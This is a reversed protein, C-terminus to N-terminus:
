ELNSSDSQNEQMWEACENVKDAGIIQALWILIQPILFILIAAVIRKGFKKVANQIGDKDDIFVVKAFDFTTFAILLLPIAIRVITFVNNNLFKLFDSGFLTECTENPSSNDQSYNSFIKSQCIYNVKSLENKTKSFEYGVTEGNENEISNIWTPYDKINGSDFASKYSEIGNVTIEKTSSLFVNSSSNETYFKYGGNAKKVIIKPANSNNYALYYAFGGMQETANKISGDGLKWETAVNSPTIKYTSGISYNIYTPCTTRNDGDYSVIYGSFSGFGVANGVTGDTYITFALYDDSSKNQNYYLCDKLKTKNNSSDSSKDYHISFEYDDSSPGDFEYNCVLSTSNISQNTIKAVARSDTSTTLEFTANYSRMSSMGQGMQPNNWTIYVNPCTLNGNSDQLSTPNISGIVQFQSPSLMSNPKKDIVMRPNDLAEVNKVSLFVIFIIILILKNKGKTM